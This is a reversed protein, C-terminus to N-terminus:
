TWRRQISPVLPPDPIYGTGTGNDIYWEYRYTNPYGHHQLPPLVFGNYQVGDITDIIENTHTRSLNYMSVTASVAM